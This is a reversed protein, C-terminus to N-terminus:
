ILNLPHTRLGKRAGRTVAPSALVVFATADPAPDRTPLRTDIRDRSVVCSVARESSM